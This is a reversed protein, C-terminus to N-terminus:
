NLLRSDALETTQGADRPLEWDEINEGANTRGGTMHAFMDLTYLSAASDRHRGRYERAQRDLDHV